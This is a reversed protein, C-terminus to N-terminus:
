PVLPVPTDFLSALRTFLRFMKDNANCVGHMHSKIHRPRSSTSVGPGIVGGLAIMQLHRSKLARRVGDDMVEGNAAQQVAGESVDDPIDSGSQAPKSEVEAEAKAM